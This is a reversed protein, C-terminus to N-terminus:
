TTEGTAKAIATQAQDLWLEPDKEHSLQDDLHVEVIWQLAELLEPAAAILRANALEHGQGECVLIQGYIYSPDTGLVEWKCYGDEYHGYQEIIWPGPTHKTM